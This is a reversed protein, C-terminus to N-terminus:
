NECRALLIPIVKESVIRSANKKIEAETLRIVTWGLSELFADRRRDKELVDEKLHWFWGDCEIDVKLDPFGFDLRFRDISYNYVFETVGFSVLSDMVIREISTVGCPFPKRNDFRGDEWM